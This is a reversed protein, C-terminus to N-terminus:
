RSVKNAELFLGLDNVMDGLVDDLETVLIGIYLILILIAVASKIPMAMFFVNLQPAFRSVLALTFEAIFMAIILPAAFVVISYMLFDLQKLLLVDLGDYGLPLISGVPWYFYSQYVVTMMLLFSGSVIFFMNLLQSLLVGLPSSQDGLVPNLMSAMTAGRQNDVFFGVGEAIWFPITVFLGIMLGIVSEKILLIFYDFQTLDLPVTESTVPFIFLSLSLIVGNKVLRGGMISKNMMPLVTFILYLRPLAMTYAQVMSELEKIDSVM